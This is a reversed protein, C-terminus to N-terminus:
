FGEKRERSSLIGLQERYKAVTRRSVEYGENKLLDTLKQDSLPNKRNESQIWHQIKEKIHASSVQEGDKSDLGARFFHRLPYVGRECLIYKNKVVRSVTSEHVDTLEGIEKMTLPVLGGDGLALFRDQKQFIAQAIAMITRERQHLANIWWKATELREKIYHETKPDPTNELVGLYYSSISLKPLLHQNTKVVIEGHIEEVLLDPLIYVPDMGAYEHGPKPNLQHILEVFHDLTQQDIGLTDLLIKGRHHALDELHHNVLRHLKEDTWGKALLQISLCNGLNTAGVGSPEFSQIMEVLQQVLSEPVQLFEAVETPDIFLYGSDEVYDILWEGIFREVDTLHQCHLQELLVDKLTEQRVFTEPLDKGPLFTTEDYAYTNKIFEVWNIEDDNTSGPDIEEMELLPNDLVQDELHKSLEMSNYALLRISQIVSTSLTQKQLQKTSTQVDMRM